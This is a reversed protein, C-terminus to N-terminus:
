IPTATVRVRMDTLDPVIAIDFDGPNLAFNSMDLIKSQTMEYLMDEDVTAQCECCTLLEIWEHPIKFNFQM